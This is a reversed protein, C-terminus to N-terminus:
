YKLNCIIYTHDASEASYRDVPYPQPWDQESKKKKKEHGLERRLIQDGSVPEPTEDRTM